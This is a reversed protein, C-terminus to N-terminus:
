RPVTFSLDLLIVVTQKSFSVAAVVALDFTYVM